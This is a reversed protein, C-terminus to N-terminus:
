AYRLYPTHRGLYAPHLVQANLEDRKAMRTIAAAFLSTFDLDKDNETKVHQYNEGIKAYAWCANATPSM